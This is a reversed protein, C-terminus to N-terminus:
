QIHEACIFSIGSTKHPQYTQYRKKIMKKKMIILPTFISDLKTGVALYIYYLYKDDIIWYFHFSDM